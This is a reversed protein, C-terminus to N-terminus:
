SKAVTRLFDGLQPKLAVVYRESETATAATAERIAEASTNSPLLDWRAEAWKREDGIVNDEFDFTGIRTAGPIEVEPADADAVVQLLMLQEHTTDTDVLSRDITDPRPFTAAVITFKMGADKHVHAEQFEPTMNMDALAQRNPYRVIAVRDWKYDEGAPQDVVIAVIVLEAGIAALPGLPSYLNDAEWGTLETERGDAYEARERYHMLNLAWMPEDMPKSPWTAIYPMNITGYRPAHVEVM